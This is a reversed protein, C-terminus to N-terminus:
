GGVPTQDVPIKVGCYRGDVKLSGDEISIGSFHATDFDFLYTFPNEGLGVNVAQFIRGGLQYISFEAGDAREDLRVVPVRSFNEGTALALAARLQAVQLSLQLRKRSAYPHQSLFGGSHQMGQLEGCSLTAAFSPSALIPFFLLAITLLSKM